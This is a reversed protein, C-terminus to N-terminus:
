TSVQLKGAFAQRLLASPLKEVTDLQEELVKRAKAVSAIQKSLHAAIRQQELLSPVPVQENQIQSRTIKKMSGSAGGAREKWYGTLYLFSLYATLFPADMKDNVWLRITLDSAVAGKPNGSYMAVRGVLEPTNSRAILIEGPSVMCETADSARMRALKVGSPQFGSEDLCATTIAQVEADGDTAISKSPLLAAEDGLRRRPWQQTEPSNFVARLYAAPLAEAAEFQTESAARAREVSAMQETLIAAIRTQESLPPLLIGIKEVVSQKLSPYADNDSYKVMDVQCLSWYLWLSTAAATPEVAMLHSVIYSDMGLIARNNKTIAAGSKPFVVTGTKALVLACEKLAEQSLRDRVEALCTTRKETGLDSVRVFPPGEPAFYDKGQPAASGAFVRAVEGLQVWRWGAPLTPFGEPLPKDLPNLGQPLGITSPTPM